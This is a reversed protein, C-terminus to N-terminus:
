SCGLKAASFTTMDSHACNGVPGNPTLAGIAHAADEIVVRPRAVLQTLDVPLGAYHVPVVAACGPPVAALDINLTAPDIDAFAPTAGVYRACTASAAFSLPSTAVVDGPGLGTAAAAGHLAATGSSFAVAHRAGVRAALAEELEAVHPGQTLWSGKLVAAVAAIDDDDISQHGYPIM